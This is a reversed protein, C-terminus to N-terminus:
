QRPLLDAVAIRAVVRGDLVLDIESGEDYVAPGEGRRYVEVRRGALDVVWVAAFGGDLFLGAKARDDELSSDSVEVILGVDAAGPTAGRRAFDDYEGRAAAVDPEPRSRRGPVVVPMEVRVHWGAPLARMITSWSRGVGASHREGKTMQEVLMGEILEIRDGKGYIGAEIMAEFEEVTIRHIAREDIRPAPLTSTTTLTSMTTEKELKRPKHEYPQEVPTRRESIGVAPSESGDPMSAAAIIGLPGFLVVPSM